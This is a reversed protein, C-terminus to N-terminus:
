TYKLQLQVLLFDLVHHIDIFVSTYKSKESHLYLQGATNSSVIWTHSSKKTHSIRYVYIYANSMLTSLRGTWTYASTLSGPLKPTPICDAVCQTRCLIVGSAPCLLLLQVEDTDGVRQSNELIIINLVYHVCSFCSCKMSLGARRVILTRQARTEWFHFLHHSSILLICVAACLFFLLQM